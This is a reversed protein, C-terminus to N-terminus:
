EPKIGAAHIIPGWKAMESKLYSVLETPTSTAVVTAMEDLKQQVSPHKLAAVADDHVKQVIAAPTKAPMFLGYWANADFGPFGSEAITPISPAHPSRTASSVAIARVTGGQIQPLIGPLAGFMADVRGPILDNLAPGSGRYPVHTIEVGATRKLLEATLHSPLGIGPSAYTAKGPNAKAYDLFEQLSRVPSSNSVIMVTPFTCLLTIPALDAIPDFGLAPYIYGNTALSPAGLLLTYGDPVSNVVTQAGLNGGAGGKNEIVVQQGWIESLRNALIRAIPDAAGGPPFPVVLRVYRSPYGQAAGRQSMIPLAAAGAGLRLLQRRSCKM